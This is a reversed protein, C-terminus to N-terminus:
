EGGGVFDDFCANCMPLSVDGGNWHARGCQSCPRRVDGPRHWGNVLVDLLRARDRRRRLLRRLWTM